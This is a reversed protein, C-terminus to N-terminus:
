APVPQTLCRVGGGGRLIKNLDLM